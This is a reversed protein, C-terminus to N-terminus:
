GRLPHRANGPDAHAERPGVHKSRIDARCGTVYSVQSPSTVLRGGPRDSGSEDPDGEHDGHGRGDRERRGVPALLDGRGAGADRHRQYTRRWLWARSRAFVRRCCARAAGVTSWRRAPPAARRARPSPVRFGCTRSARDRIGSRQWTRCARAASLAHGHEPDRHDDAHQVRAHHRRDEHRVRVGLHQRDAAVRVDRPRCWHPEVAVTPPWSRNSLTCSGTPLVGTGSGCQVMGGGAARLVTGQRISGRVFVNPPEIGSQQLTATYRTSSTGIAVTDRAERGARHDDDREVRAHHAVTKDDLGAGHLTRLQLVFTAPGLVLTGHSLGNREVGHAQFSFTCTGTPLVGVGIGCDVPAEAPTANRRVRSSGPRPYGREPPGAWSGQVHGHVARVSWQPRCHELEPDGRQDDAHQARAHHRRDEHEAGRGHRRRVAAVPLDRSGAGTPNWRGSNSVAVPNSVTCSGTPPAGTGSGCQVFQGGDADTRHVTDQVIVGTVAVPSRSAGPNQLTATYLTNSNGIVVTDSSLTLATIAPTNSVVDRRPRLNPSAETVDPHDGCASLGVVALTLVSRGARSPFSRM